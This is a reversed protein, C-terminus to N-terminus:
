SYVTIRIASQIAQWLGYLNKSKEYIRVVDGYVDMSKRGPIEMSEM